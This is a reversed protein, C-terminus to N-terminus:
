LCNWFNLATEHHPCGTFILQVVVTASHRIKEIEFALFSGVTCHLGVFTAVVGNLEGSFTDAQLHALKILMVFLPHSPWDLFRTEIEVLPLVGRGEGLFGQGISVLEDEYEFHQPSYGRPFLPWPTFSIVVRWRTCINFVVSAISKSGWIDQCKPLKKEKYPGPYKLVPHQTSYKPKLPVFYCPLSYFM